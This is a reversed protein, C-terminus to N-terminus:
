TVCQIQVMDSESCTGSDPGDKSDTCVFECDREKLFDGLNLGREVCCVYKPEKDAAEGGRPLVAVM